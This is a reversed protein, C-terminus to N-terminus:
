SPSPSPEALPKNRVIRPDRWELGLTCKEPPDYSAEITLEIVDVHDPLSITLEDYSYNSPGEGVFHGDAKFTWSFSATAMGCNGTRSIYGRLGDLGDNLNGGGPSFRVITTGEALDLWKWTTGGDFSIPKPGSTQVLNQALNGYDDKYTANSGGSGDNNPVILLTAVVLAAVLSAVAATRIFISQWRTSSPKASKAAALYPPLPLSEPTKTETAETEPAAETEPVPSDAVTAVPPDAKPSTALTGSTGLLLGIVSVVQAFNAATQLDRFIWIVFPTIVVAWLVVQSAFRLRQRLV